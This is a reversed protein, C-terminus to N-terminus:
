PRVVRFGSQPNRSNPSAAPRSSSYTGSAVSGYHGGRQVRGMGSDPGEYNSQPSSPYTAQWDWCWEAVNGHMDFLGYLNPLKLGVQHTRNNSNDSYWAYNVLESQIDGFYWNTTTGARCAYEWEAETPLRYGNEGLNATVNAAIIHNGSRTINTITYVPNLGNSESLKNCFEVADFWSVNEVPRKEQVEGPTVVRASETGWFSSPNYGMVAEYQDQTVQHISMRFTSLTITGSGSRILDGGPITAMTISVPQPGAANVVVAATNSTETATQSGNVSTNTNTVVVYYYLTGITDTPPTFTTGTGVSTGGTNSPTNNRFWQYSFTGGDTVPAVAVFLPAATANHAYTAGTPQTNIVPIEANIIPITSFTIVAVNSVRSATKNGGDGNDTITNTVVVYYYFISPDISSTPPQYFSSTEGTIETGGSNSNSTNRFWQYTLTGGDTVNATVSLTDILAANPLYNKSLPHATINPMQASIAKPAWKAFLTMDTNDPYVNFDWPKEFVGNDTYWGAFNYDAKTPNAPQKILEDRWPYQKAPTPSGGNANFTIESVGLIDKMWPNPCSTIFLSCLVILLSLTFFRGRILRVFEFNM